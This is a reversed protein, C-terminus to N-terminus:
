RRGRQDRHDRQQGGDVPEGHGSEGDGPGGGCEHRCWSHRCSLVQQCAAGVRRPDLLVAGVGQVPQQHPGARRDARREGCHQQAEPPRGRQDPPVGGAEEAGRQQQHGDAAGGTRGGRRPRRGAVRPL